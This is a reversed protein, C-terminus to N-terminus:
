FNFNKLKFSFVDVAQNVTDSKSCKFNWIGGYSNGPDEWLPKREGRM